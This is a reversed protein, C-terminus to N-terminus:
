STTATKSTVQGDSRSVRFDHGFQIGGLILVANFDPGPQFFFPATM